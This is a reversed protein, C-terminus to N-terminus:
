RGYKVIYDAVPSGNRYTEAQSERTTTKVDEEQRFSEEIVHGIHQKLEKMFRKKNDMCPKELVKSLTTRDMQALINKVEHLKWTVSVQNAERM